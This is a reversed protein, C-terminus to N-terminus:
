KASEVRRKLQEFTEKAQFSRPMFIIVDGFESSSHLWISIRRHSSNDPRDIHRVETLPIRIKRLFNSVLLSNTDLYVSKLPTLMWWAFGAFATLLLLAFPNEGLSFPQSLVLWRWMAEVINLLPMSLWFGTFIFKWFFTTSSSLRM